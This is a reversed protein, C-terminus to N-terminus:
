HSPGLWDVLVEGHDPDSELAPTGLLPLVVAGPDMAVVLSLPLSSASAALADLLSSGSSLSSSSSSSATPTPQNSNATRRSLRMRPGTRPQSVNRPTSTVLSTKSTTTTTTADSTPQEDGQLSSSSSEAEKRKTELETQVRRVEQRIREEQSFDMGHLRSPYYQVELSVESYPEIRNIRPPIVRFPCERTFGSPLLLSSSASTSTSAVTTSSSLSASTTTSATTTAATVTAKMNVHFTVARNGSNRLTVVQSHVKGVQCRGFEHIWGRSSASSSSSSSASASSSPPVFHLRTDGSYALLTFMDSFAAEASVVEYERQLFGLKNPFVKISLWLVTKSPLTYQSPTVDFVKSDTDTDGDTDADAGDKSKKKEKEDERTAKTLANITQDLLAMSQEHQKMQQTTAATTPALSSSSSRPKSKPRIMFFASMNGTNQICLTRTDITQQNDSVLGLPVVGPLRLQAPDIGLDSQWVAQKRRDSHITLALKAGGGICRMEGVFLTLTHFRSWIGLSSSSASSSPTPTMLPTGGGHTPTNAVSGQRSPNASVDTEYGHAVVLRATYARAQEQPRCTVEIRISQYPELHGCWPSVSFASFQLPANVNSFHFVNIKQRTENSSGSNSTSTSTNTRLLASMAQAEERRRTLDFQQPDLSDLFRPDTLLQSPIAQSVIANANVNVNATNITSDHSPSGAGSEGLSVSSSSSSLSVPASSPVAFSETTTKSVSSTTALTGSQHLQLQQQQQQQQQKLVDDATITRLEEVGGDEGASQNVRTLGAHISSTTSQSDKTEVLAVKQTGTQQAIEPPLAVSSDTSLSASASSSSFSSISSSSSSFSLTAETMSLSRSHQGSTATTTATSPPTLNSVNLVPMDDFAIRYDLGQGGSNFLDFTYTAHRNTRVVGFDHSLGGGGGSIDMM